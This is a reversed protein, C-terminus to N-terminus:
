VTKVVIMANKDKIKLSIFGIISKPQIIVRPKIVDNIIVKVSSGAKILKTGLSFIENFLYLDQARHLTTLEEDEEEGRILQGKNPKVPIIGKNVLKELLPDMKKARVVRDFLGNVFGESHREVPDGFVTLNPMGLNKAFPVMPLFYHGLLSDMQGESYRRNSLANDIQNFLNPVAFSSSGSQILRKMASVSKEDARAIDIFDSVGKFIEQQAKTNIAFQQMSAKNLAQVSDLQTQVHQQEIKANTSFQQSEINANEKMANSIDNRNSIVADREDRLAGIIRDSYEQLRSESVFYNGDLDSDVALM